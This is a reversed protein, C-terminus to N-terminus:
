YPPLVLGDDRRLEEGIMGLIEGPLWRGTRVKAVWNVFGVGAQVLRAEWTELDRSEAELQAEYAMHERHRAPQSNSQIFSKTSAIQTTLNTVATSATRLFLFASTLNHTPDSTPQM